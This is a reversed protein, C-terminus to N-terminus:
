YLYFFHFIYKKVISECYLLIIHRNDPNFGTYHTIYLYGENLLIGYSFYLNTM